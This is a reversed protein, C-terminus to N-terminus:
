LGPLLIPKKAPVKPAPGQKAPKSASSPPTATTPTATTPASAPASAPLSSASSKKLKVSKAGRLPKAGITQPQDDEYGPTLRKAAKDAFADFGKALTSFLGFILTLGVGLVVVAVIIAKAGGKKGIDIPEDADGADGSGGGRLAALEAELATIRAAKAQADEAAPAHGEASKSEDDRKPDDTSM